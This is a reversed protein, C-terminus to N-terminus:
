GDRGGAWVSGLAAAQWGMKGGAGARCPLGGVMGSVATCIYNISETLEKM